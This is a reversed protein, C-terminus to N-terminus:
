VCKVASVGPRRNVVFAFAGNWLLYVLLLLFPKRSSQEPVPQKLTALQAINFAHEGDLLQKKFIAPDSSPTTDAWETILYNQWAAFLQDKQVSLSRDLSGGGYKDILYDESPFLRTSPHPSPPTSLYTDVMLALAIVPLLYAARAAGEIRFLLLLCITLSFFLWAQTFPPMGFALEWFSLGLKRWFSVQGKDELAEYGAAIELRQAESLRAFRQANEADRSGMPADADGIVAEYMLLQSKYRFYEGMFPGALVWCILSFALCLHLIVFVRQGTTM